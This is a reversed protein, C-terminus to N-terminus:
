IEYAINMGIHLRQGGIQIKPLSKMNTDDGPRLHPRYTICYVM